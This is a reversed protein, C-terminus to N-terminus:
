RGQLWEITERFFPKPDGLRFMELRDGPRWPTLVDLLTRLRGPAGPPLALDSESRRLRALLHDVEGWEWRSRVGVRYREPGRLPKGLARGVLLAPFDVGADLALQLSGWFRGNVEMAYPTGTAADLKYEVMAVGRWDFAELLRRSRALLESDAAIAERYVSIGGAPPKERLRRHAFTAITEGDWQLLFVGVGPGVVRQQLMIPYAAAPYSELRAMLEAMTAAHRVGLKTRQGNSEVVSRAPKLVLPFRLSQQRLAALEDRSGVVCQEPVAIGVDRARELLLQKDSIARFQTASAFPVAVGGFRDPADLVSLLSQETMPLLVQVGHTRTLAAIADVFAAPQELASPVVHQAHAHRSAGAISHPRTSSVLVRYGAAGLSRVVALAARQEGDTVLVTPRSGARSEAPM